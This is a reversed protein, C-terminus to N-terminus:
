LIERKGYKDATGRDIFTNLFTAVVNSDETNLPTGKAHKVYAHLIEDEKYMQEIFSNITEVNEIIFPLEKIEEVKFKQGKYLERFKAILKLLIQCSESKINSVAYRLYSKQDEIVVANSLNLYVRVLTFFVSSKTFFSNVDTEVYDGKTKDYMRIIVRSTTKQSDKSNTIKTCISKSKDYFDKFSTFEGINCGIHKKIFKFLKEYLNEEDVKLTIFSIHEYYVSDLTCNVYQDNVAAWIVYPTIHKGSKHSRRKLYEQGRELIFTERVPYQIEPRKINREGDLAIFKEYTVKEKKISDERQELIQNLLSHEDKLFKENVLNITTLDVFPINELLNKTAEDKISERLPPISFLVRGKKRLRAVAQLISPLGDSFIGEEGIVNDDTYKCPFIVILADGENNIDVGTAFNTGINCCNEDFSVEKNKTTISTLLNIKKYNFTTELEKHIGLALNKSYCLIHFNNDDSVHKEIWQNLFEILPGLKNKSYSENLFVVDLPSVAKSKVRKSQLVQITDGTLYALHKVVINVPETYTATSVICKRVVDRWMTLFYLFESKFNHISAHIEDLFLYVSKKYKKCYALLADFYDSKVSKQLFAVEGPNRLLGNITTIHIRKNIIYRQATISKLDGFVKEYGEDKAVFESLDKYNTIIDNSIGEFELLAKHDKEVLSVFPTTLIVLSNEDGQIIDNILRYVASTKGSGTSVNIVVTNVEDLAIKSVLDDTVYGEENQEVEKYSVNYGDKLLADIDVTKYEIEKNSVVFEKASFSKFDGFSHVDKSKTRSNVKKSSSGVKVTPTSVVEFPGSEKTTHTKNDKM